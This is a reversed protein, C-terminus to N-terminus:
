TKSSLARPDSWKGAYWVFAALVVVIVLTRILAAWFFWGGETLM